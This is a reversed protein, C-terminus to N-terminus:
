VGGAADDLALLAGEARLYPADAPTIRKSLVLDYYASAAQVPAGRTAELGLLPIARRFRGQERLVTALLRKAEASAAFEATTARLLLEAETHRGEEIMVKALSMRGLLGDPQLAAVRRYCAIAAVRDGRRALLNGLRELAAPHDADIAIARRLEGITKWM